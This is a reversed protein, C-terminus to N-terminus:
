SNPEEHVRALWQEFEPDDDEDIWPGWSSEHDNVDRVEIGFPGVFLSFRHCACQNNDIWKPSGGSRDWLTWGKVYLYLWLTVRNQRFRIGYSRGNKVCKM